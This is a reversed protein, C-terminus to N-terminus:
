NELCLHPGVPVWFGLSLGPLGELAVSAVSLAPISCTYLRAELPVSMQFFSDPPPLLRSPLNESTFPKLSIGLESGLTMKLMRILPGREVFGHTRRLAGEGLM